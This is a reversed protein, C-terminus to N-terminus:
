GSNFHKEADKWGDYINFITLAGLGIVLDSMDFPPMIFTNLVWLLIMAVAYEFLWSSLPTENTALNLKTWFPLEFFTKANSTM